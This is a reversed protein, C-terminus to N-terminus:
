NRFCYADCGNQDAVVAPAIKGLDECGECGLCARRFSNQSGIDTGRVFGQGQQLCGQAGFAYEAALAVAGTEAGGDVRNEM